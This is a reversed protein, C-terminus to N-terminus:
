IPQQDEEVVEGSESGEKLGDEGSTFYPIAMLGLGVMISVDAMNFIGTSVFGLDIHLFDTVSEYKIRDYVNGIGGGIMFGFGLISYFNLSYRAFLFATAVGIVLAPLITFIIKKIIPHFNQGFGLFAGSNEVKTLMLVHDVVPIREYYRVNERVINKSIQDCGVNALIIVAILVIRFAKTKVM